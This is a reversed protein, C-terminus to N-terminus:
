GIYRALWALVANWAATAQVANYRAGTDNFFAHDVGPFTKIEHIAGAKTLAAGMADRSANVRSDLEAYVALVAANKSGAFNPQDPGPGYFPIAAALRPEGSALLNWVMGGGFCFGIVALKQGPASAALEGLAAKTDAVLDATGIQALPAPMADAVAATGGARSALDVALATYGSAAFRAALARFHDTLGRNEHIILIAGRPQAAAAMAAQLEGAPGVFRISKVVPAGAAQTTTAPRKTTTPKAKLKKKAAAATAPSGSLTLLSTAAGVSLGLLGLKRLAERRTLLGDAHDLAIEQVLYESLAM